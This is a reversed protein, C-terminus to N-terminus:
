EVTDDLARRVWRALSNSFSLNRWAALDFPPAFGSEPQPTNEQIPPALGEALQPLWDPVDGEVRPVEFKLGASTIIWGGDGSFAVALISRPSLDPDSLPQGSSVDWLRVIGSSTSTVLRLGDPSFRVCNVKADHFLPEGQLELTRTLYLRAAGDACGAAVLRGDSSIDVALVQTGSRAAVKQRLESLRASQPQPRLAVASEQATAVSWPALHTIFLTIASGDFTVAIIHRGDPAFRADSVATPLRAPECAPATTQADWMRITHDDSATLIFQGNASFRATAVSNDHMMANGVPQGTFADWLHATQNRSATVIRSGDPSFEAHNVSASHPLTLQREGTSASWVVAKSDAAGSVLRKGDPSFRVDRIVREHANPICVVVNSDRTDFVMITNTRLGVVRRTGDTSFEGTDSPLSLSTALPVLFTRQSLANLLREATARNDPRERLARALLNLALDARGDTFQQEAAKLSLRRYTAERQHRQQTAQRWQNVLGAALLVCAAATTILGGKIPHRRVWKWTREGRGVPRALVVEGRLWHELDEALAQTTAYRRGPQPELCRLCVAELDADIEPNITAPGRVQGSSVEEFFKSWDTTSFPAQGTIAHYLVAGLSFVDSARSIEKARGAVQEPSAYGLTGLGAHTLQDALFPTAPEIDESELLERPDLTAALRNPELRALGFDTVYPKGVGDLLINSPKLDRHLVGREHAHHVARAIAAMLAAARRLPLPGPHEKLQEALNSGEIFAMSFYPQDGHESAEYIEVINEHRLRAVAEAERRFRVLHPDTPKWAFRIMKLAVVRNLRRQRARYVIGMGGARGEDLLEYDGILRQRQVQPLIDSLDVPEAVTEALPGELADRM